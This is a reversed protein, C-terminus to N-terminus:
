VFKLKENFADAFDTLLTKNEGKVQNKHDDPLWGQINTNMISFFIYMIICHQGCLM